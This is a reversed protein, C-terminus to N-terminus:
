QSPLLSRIAADLDARTAPKTLLGDSGAPMKAEAYGSLILVPRDFKADRLRALTEAGGMGPMSLDLIVLDYSDPEPLLRALAAEGSSVGDVEHGMRKLLRGYSRRVLDEDDVLLIRRKGTRPGPQRTPRRAPVESPRASSVPLFVRFTAGEDPASEVSVHGEHDRVIGYVSALGLGSGKGPAKTTFFPEWLRHQTAEDMGSGNDSVRVCAYGDERRLGTEPVEEIAQVSVCIRPRSQGEVADRANLLLNLFVQELQAARGRVRLEAPAPEVDLEIARDFTRRCVSIAADLPDCLPMTMAAQEGEKRTLTLLQKVVEKASVTARRADELAARLEEDALEVGLDLNPLISALLNNFNHAVGAALAGVAEMKQSRHAVDKQARQETADTLVGSFVIRGTEERPHANGRLWRREGSPRRYLFEHTWAEGTEASRRISAAFGEQHSPEISGFFQSPEDLVKAVDRGLLEEGGESMFTLTDQGGPVHVHEYVAGPIAGTIRQLLARTERGADEALKRATIDHFSTVVGHIAGSSTRVPETNVRVWTLSGDPKRIGMLAERVHEGTELARTSPYDEVPYPSLDERVLQWRPDTPTDGRIQEPTLGLIEVASRNATEVKGEANRFLVGVAVADVLTRYRDESRELEQVLDTLAVTRESVRTELEDTRRKGQSHDRFTCLVHTVNGDEDLDPIADVILWIRDRSRPRYVGMIVDRVEARTAIAQPVPHTPGPFDSGDEHIVNWEPDFSTKGLLQDEDLGLLRLAAPNAVLIEANPGQLLVGVDLGEFIGHLAAPDPSLPTSPSPM